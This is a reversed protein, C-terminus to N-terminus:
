KFKGSIFHFLKSKFGFGKKEERELAPDRAEKPTANQEDM